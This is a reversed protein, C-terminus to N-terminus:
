NWVHHGDWNEVIETGRGPDTALVLAAIVAVADPSDSAATALPNPSVAARRRPKGPQRALEGLQLQTSTAVLYEPVSDPGVAVPAGLSSAVRPGVEISPDAVAGVDRWTPEWERAAAWFLDRTARRHETLLGAEILRRAALSVGGPSTGSRQALSRVGDMAEPWALLADITVASVAKGALVRLARESGDSGLTVVADSDITLEATRLKLRQGDLWGAGGVEFRKKTAVSIRHGVLVAHPELDDPDDTVQLLAGHPEVTVLAGDRRAGIGLESLAEVLALALEAIHHGDM